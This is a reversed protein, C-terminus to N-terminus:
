DKQKITGQGSIEVNQSKVKGKYVVSSSGKMEGTMEGGAMQIKVKSSGSLDFDANTVLSEILDIESAGSTELDLNNIKNNKGNLSSSGSTDIALADIVNNELNIASEGSTEIKLKDLKFGSIFVDASGSTKLESLIPLSIEAYNKPCKYKCRTDLILTNGQQKVLLDSLADQTTTVKIKYKSDHIVKVDWSAATEINKFNTFTYEQDVTKANVSCIVACCYFFLLTNLIYHLKQM